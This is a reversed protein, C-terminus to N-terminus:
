RSSTRVAAVVFLVVEPINRNSQTRDLSQEQQETEENIRPIQLHLVYTGEFYQRIEMSILFVTCM